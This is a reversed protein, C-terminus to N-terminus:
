SLGLLKRKGATFEEDDLIGQAKLEGLKALEANLDVVAAAPAAAAPASAAYGM